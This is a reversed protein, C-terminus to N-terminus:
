IEMETGGMRGDIIYIDKDKYIEGLRVREKMSDIAIIVLGREIREEDIITVIPTIQIGTQEFVNDYLADVKNMGLQNEKFFQSAVNHNEVKDADYVTLDEFGMKALLLTTWSGIGGAGIIYIPTNTISSDIFDLQRKHREINM